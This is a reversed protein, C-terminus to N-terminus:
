QAGENMVAWTMDIVDRSAAVDHVRIISAGKQVAMSVTALSGFLRDQVDKKLSMGIMSKRSTGSLVPFGLETFYDLHNLLRLNHQVTKGFGFGPDLILRSKHIGAQECHNVRGLLFMKVEQLINHYEPNEQMSQPQGQMHMLCIKCDSKVLFDLSHLKQLARVDNIIDIQLDLALRMVAESSTDVSLKIPFEQRIAELVPLVRNLEEQESVVPAGPRTSEGGVDIIDAGERILQECRKLALDRHNFKGGDSFSDPTLNLIAMLQPKLKSTALM